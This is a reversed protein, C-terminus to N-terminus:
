GRDQVDERGGEDGHRSSPPDTEEIEHLDRSQGSSGARLVTFSGLRAVYPRGQISNLDSGSDQRTARDSQTADHLITVIERGPGIPSRRVLRERPM